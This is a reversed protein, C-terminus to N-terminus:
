VNNNSESEIIDFPTHHTLGFGDPQYEEKLTTPLSCGHPNFIMSLQYQKQMLLSISGFEPMDHPITNYLENTLMSIEPVMDEPTAALLRKYLSLIGDIWPMLIPFSDWYIEMTEYNYLIFPIDRILDFLARLSSSPHHIGFQPASSTIEVSEGAAPYLADKIEGVLSFPAKSIKSSMAVQEPLAVLEALANTISDGNTETLSQCKNIVEDLLCLTDLYTAIITHFGNIGQSGRYFEVLDELSQIFSTSVTKYLDFYKVKM